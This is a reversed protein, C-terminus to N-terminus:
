TITLLDARKSAQKKKKTKQREGGRDVSAM